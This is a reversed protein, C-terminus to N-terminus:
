PSGLEIVPGGAATADEADHTVLLMPLGEARARDFVLRRIQDRRSADLRSFPEDLLLACPESLLVRMLAVRAKQGGSLTAPDRAYFGALGIDELAEEIRARRNRAGPRLGFALNQGVSMHPFLLDDQFLIGIRRKDPPLDTIDQGNLHIRGRGTFEPALTGIVYSLLTSKGSGSAGMVTLVEGPAVHRDVEVLREAGKAICVDNLRLGREAM